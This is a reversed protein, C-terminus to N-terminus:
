KLEEATEVFALLKTAMDSMAQTVENKPINVTKVTVLGGQDDLLRYSVSVPINENPRIIIESIIASQIKITKM